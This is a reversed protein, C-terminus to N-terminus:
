IQVEVYVHVCLCYGVNQENKEVKLGPLGGSALVFVKYTTFCECFHHCFAVPVDPYVDSSYM